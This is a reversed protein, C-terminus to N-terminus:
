ADTRGAEDPLPAKPALTMARQRTDLYSVKRSLVRQYHHLARETNGRQEYLTGLRYHIEVLAETLVPKHLPARELAQIALDIEGAAEYAEALRLPTEPAYPAADLLRQGHYIAAEPDGLVVYASVLAAEVEPLGPVREAVLSLAEAAEAPRQQRQLLLGLWYLADSNAPDLLHAKQLREVAVGTQNKELADVAKRVLRMSKQPRRNRWVLWAILYVAWMPPFLAFVLAIGTLIRKRRRRRVQAQRRTVLSPREEDQDTKVVVRTFPDGRGVPTHARRERTAIRGAPAPAVTKVDLSADGAAPGSVVSPSSPPM